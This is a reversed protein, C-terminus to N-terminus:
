REEEVLILILFIMRSSKLLRCVYMCVYTCVHVSLCEGERDIAQKAQRRRKRRERKEEKESELDCDCVLECVCKFV